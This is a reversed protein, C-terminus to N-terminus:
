VYKEPDEWFKKRCFDTCFYYTKGRYEEKFPAGEEEVDGYCVLDIAMEEGSIM